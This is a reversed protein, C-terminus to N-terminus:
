GAATEPVSGAAPPPWVLNRKGAAVNKLMEVLVTGPCRDGLVAACGISLYIATYRSDDIVAVVTMGDALLRECDAVGQQQTGHCVVIGARFQTLVQLAADTSDVRVPLFGAARAKGLWSDLKPSAPSAIWVVSTNM